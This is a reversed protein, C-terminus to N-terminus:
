QTNCAMALFPAQPWPDQVAHSQLVWYIAVGLLHCRCAILENLLSNAIENALLRHSIWETPGTDGMRCTQGRWPTLAGVHGAIVAGTLCIRAVDFGFVADSQPRFLISMPKDM